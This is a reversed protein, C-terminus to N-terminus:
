KVALAMAIVLVGSQTHRKGSAKFEGSAIHRIETFYPVERITKAIVVAGTIKFAAAAMLERGEALIASKSRKGAYELAPTKARDLAQVDFKEATGPFLKPLLNPQPEVGKNIAEILGAKEEADSEAKAM